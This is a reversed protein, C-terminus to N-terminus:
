TRPKDNKNHTLGYNVVDVEHALKPADLYAFSFPCENGLARESNRNM